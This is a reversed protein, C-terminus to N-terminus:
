YSPVAACFFVMVLWCWVAVADASKSMAMMPMPGTPAVVARNRARAPNVTATMSRSSSTYLSGRATAKSPSIMRPKWRRSRPSCTALRSCGKRGPSCTPKPLELRSHSKLCTGVGNLLLPQCLKLMNSWGSSSPKRRSVASASGFTVAWMPASAVAMLSASPRTTM